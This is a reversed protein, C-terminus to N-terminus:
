DPDPIRQRAMGSDPNIRREHCLAGEFLEGAFMRLPQNAFTFADIAEHDQQSSCM